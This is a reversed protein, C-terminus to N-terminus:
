QQSLSGLLGPAGAPRRLFAHTAPAAREHARRVALGRCPLMLGNALYGLLSDMM